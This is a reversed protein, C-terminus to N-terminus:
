FNDEIRMLCPAGVVVDLRAILDRATLMNEALVEHTTLVLPVEQGPDHGHQLISEISVDHDRLIAAVDAIVGTKDIMPLRLYYRSRVELPDISSLRELDEVPAGFTPVHIGRAIDVLDAVVSSATAGGGAGLGTLLPTEVFDCEFYVANYVGDIVSFPSNETVLCPEVTQLIRGDYNKATGIVKIVCGLEAAFEMDEATLHGIGQTRVASFDPKMGFCIAALIAVKHGADIGEIDFTPDSEAYGKDQADQLVDAFSRGTDRMETLIYNSTGNLIGHVSNIRNGAFSQRAAKIVPIGGAVAAEYMISCDNGEALTALEAGHHAILAKNATVVHKGASLADKVLHYAAGESGGIMEVIVDVKDILDAPNDFWEYGSLDMGRDAKKDRASIGVIEIARGARKTILDANAQLVKITGAGVTGLGVIGVKLPEIM